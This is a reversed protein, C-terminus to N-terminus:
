LLEKILDILNDNEFAKKDEKINTLLEDEIRLETFIQLTNNKEKNNQSHYNRLLQKAAIKKQVAQNNEISYMTDVKPKEKSSQGRSFVNMFDRYKRVNSGLLAEKNVSNHLELDKETIKRSLLFDNEQLGLDEGEIPSKDKQPDRLAEASPIKIGKALNEKEVKAAQEATSEEKKDLQNTEKEKELARNISMKQQEEEEDSYVKTNKTRLAM